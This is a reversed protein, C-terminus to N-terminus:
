YEKFGTGSDVVETGGAQAGCFKHLTTADMFKHMQYTVAGGDQAQRETMYLLWRERKYM